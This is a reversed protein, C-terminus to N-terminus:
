RTGVAHMLTLNDRDFLAGKGDKHFLHVMFDETAKASPQYHGSNNSVLHVKGDTVGLEGAAAVPKGGLLSSHHFEGVEQYNSAFIEGHQDMVFIARPDKSHVSGGASTDFLDGDIDRLLGDKDVHLKYDQREIPGLYRVPTGFEANGPLNEGHYKELLHTPAFRPARTARAADGAASAVRRVGSAARSAVGAGGALSAIADPICSGAARAPDSKWGDVNAVTKAGQWPNKVVGAVGAALTSANQVAQQPHTLNWPDTPNVTRALQVMGGVAEGLGSAMSAVTRGEEQVYDGLDSTLRSFWSPKGPATGAAASVARAAEQGANQVAARAQDLQHQAAARQEAAPDAFAGPPPGPPAGGANAAEAAQNYAGVKANHAQRAQQARQQAEALQRQAEAAQKQSEALVQAYRAVAAGAHEFADAATRWRPPSTELFGRFGDAAQGSWRQTDIGAFGRAARDAAQGLKSLHEATEGLAAPDGPLVPDEGTLGLAQGLESLDQGFSSTNSVM